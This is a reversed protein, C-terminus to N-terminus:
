LGLEEMALTLERAIERGYKGPRFHDDLLLRRFHVHYEDYANCTVSIYRGTWVKPNRFHRNPNVEEFEFKEGDRTMTIMGTRTQGEVLNTDQMWTRLDVCLYNQTKM